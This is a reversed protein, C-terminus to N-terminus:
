AVDALPDTWMGTGCAIELITGRPQMEGVLREHVGDGAWPDLCKRSDAGNVLVDIAGVQDVAVGRSPTPLVDTARL